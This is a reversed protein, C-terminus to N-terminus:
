DTEVPYGAEAWAVIGGTLNVVNGFGAQTTLAHVVHASRQGTRCYVVVTRDRALETWWQGISSMPRLEAGSIRAVAYEAPERVDVLIGGDAVLAEVESPVVSPVEPLPPTSAIM